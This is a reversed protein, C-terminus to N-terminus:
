RTEVPQPIPDTSGRADPNASSHTKTFRWPRMENGANREEEELTSTEREEESDIEKIAMPRTSVPAIRLDSDLVSNDRQLKLWPVKAFKHLVM